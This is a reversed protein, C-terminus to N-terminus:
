FLFSLAAEIAVYLMRLKPIDEPPPIPSWLLLGQHVITYGNDLAQKVLRPISDRLNAIKLVARFSIVGDKKFVWIQLDRWRLYQELYRETAVLEHIRSCSNVMLNIFILLSLVLRMSLVQRLGLASLLHMIILKVNARHAIPKSVATGRNLDLDKTLDYRVWTSVQERM